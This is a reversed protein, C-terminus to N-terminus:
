TFEIKHLCDRFPTDKGLFEHIQGLPQGKEDFIQEYVKITMANPFLRLMLDISISYVIEGYKVLLGCEMLLTKFFSSRTIQTMNISLSRRSSCWRNLYYEIQTPVGNDQAESVNYICKKFVNFVAENVIPAGTSISSRVFYDDIMQIAALFYKFDHLRKM